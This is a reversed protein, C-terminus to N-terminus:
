RFVSYGLTIVSPKQDEVKARCLKEAPLSDFDRRRMEFAAYALEWQQRPPRRSKVGPAQM